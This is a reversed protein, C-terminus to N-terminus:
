RTNVVQIETRPSNFWSGYPYRMLTFGANYIATPTNSPVTIRTYEKINQNPPLYAAKLPVSIMTMGFQKNHLHLFLEFKDRGKGLPISYPYPNNIVVDIAIDQGTLVKDPLVCEVDIDQSPIYNSITDYYVDYKWLKRYNCLPKKQEDTMATIMIDWIEIAVPKMYLQADLPMFEYHNSRANVNSRCHAPNGGYFRMKSASVYNNSSLFPRGGLSDAFEKYQKNNFIELNLETGSYSMAFIRITLFLVVCVGGVKMLYSQLRKRTRAGRVLFYLMAFSIPILWQPQVHVNRTSWLFFGLFGWTIYKLARLIPDFGTASQERGDMKVLLMFFFPLLFINYVGVLNVFYLWLNELDFSSTRATLHYNFSVWDHQYQWHLHPAYCLAAVLIAWYFRPNGFLRVNSLVIFGIILIGHYKSYCLAAAAAGLGVTYGIASTSKYDYRDIKLFKNYLWLVLVTFFLLPADPTAIFGYLQLTPLSFAVMFYIFALRRTPNEGRVLTWFLYLYVPQLLILLFRVGLESDGVMIGSLGILWGFMPPHDFYGFSLDHSLVWYYAEDNALETFYGQVLNLLTWLSLLVVLFGNPTSLYRKM